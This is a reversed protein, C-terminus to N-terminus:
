RALQSRRAFLRFTVAYREARPNLPADRTLHDIVEEVLAPACAQMPPLEASVNCLASLLQLWRLQPWWNARCYALRSCFFQVDRECASRAESVTYQSSALRVGRQHDAMGRIWGKHSLLTRRYRSRLESRSVDGKYAQGGGGAAGYQRGAVPWAICRSWDDSYRHGMDAPAESVEDSRATSTDTRLQRDVATRASTAGSSNRERVQTTLSTREAM